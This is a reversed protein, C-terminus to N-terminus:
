SVSFLYSVDKLFKELQIKVKTNSHKYHKLKENVM